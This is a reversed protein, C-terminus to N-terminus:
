RIGLVPRLWKEATEVSVNRRRAYEEVQDRGIRTIAFYRAQPHSFYFGCVSAAPVMAFSETLTMGITETVGLAGFVAAKESHDPCAPYGPAPRIGRYACHFLDAPTFREDPSYGWMVKRVIEHLKEAFAEALRDALLRVMVAGYDDGRSTFRSVADDLGFGASVAFLGAYDRVGSGAPAVFDALSLLPQDGTHVVQQRLAHIVALPRKEVEGEYLEIDDSPTSVAPFLGAMGRATLLRESKIRKLM